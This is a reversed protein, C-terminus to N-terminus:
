HAPACAHEAADIRLLSGAGPIDVSLGCARLISYTSATAASLVAVGFEREAMDVLELSPMQVCCSIVVADVGTYDLSRAATMVDRGPLCGVAHDDEVELCKWDHVTFGEHEIYDVVKESLPRMYPMVLAVRQADLARLAEILSGASTRVKAESGGTALQEAILGEVRQHEGPGGAMLAVPSAYLIVDPLADGIEIVCRERQANMAELQTPSVQSMRMRTVHHSFRASPHRGLLEPIETELTVNTSPVILGVRRRITQFGGM